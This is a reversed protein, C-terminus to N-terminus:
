ARTRRREIGAHELAAETQELEDFTRLAYIRESEANQIVLADVQGARIAALTAEAENTPKRRSNRRPGSRLTRASSGTIVHRSGRPKTGKKLAASM